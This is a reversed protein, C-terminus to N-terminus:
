YSLLIFYYIKFSFINNFFSLYIVQFMESGILRAIMFCVYITGPHIFNKANEELLPTWLFLFLALCIKFSSEIIGIVLLEKKKRVAIMASKM